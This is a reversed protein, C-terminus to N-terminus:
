YLVIFCFINKSKAMNTPKAMCVNAVAAVGSLTNTTFFPRM